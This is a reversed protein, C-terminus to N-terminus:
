LFQFTYDCVVEFGLQEYLKRAALNDKSTQLIPIKNTSIAVDIMLGMLIKGFGKGRFQEEVYLTTVDIFKDSQGYFRAMGIAQNQVELIYIGNDIEDNLKRENTIREIALETDAEFFSILYEKIKNLDCVDNRARRFIINQDMKIKIYNQLNLKYYSNLYLDKKLDMNALIYEVEEFKGALLIDKLNLTKLLQAIAKLGSKNTAYYTTFHSNGDDKIHVISTINAGYKEIYVSGIQGKGSEFYHIMFVNMLEDQYLFELIENKTKESIKELKVMIYKARKM